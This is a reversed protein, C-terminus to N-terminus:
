LWFGDASGYVVFAASKCERASELIDLLGERISVSWRGVSLLLALALVFTDGEGNSM